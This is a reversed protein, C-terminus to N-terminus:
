DKRKSDFSLVWDSLEDEETRPASPASIRPTEGVPPTIDISSDSPAGANVTVNFIPRGSTKAADLRDMLIALMNEGAEIKQTAKGDIKEIVWKAVDIKENMKVKNTRDSLAMQIVNMAPEAFTKMRAGITEEYIREQLKAIEEAIFPNKLLICVRSDVYGLEKAIEANSRGSAALFALRRHRPSLYGHALTRYETALETTEEPPSEPSEPIVSEFEEEDL